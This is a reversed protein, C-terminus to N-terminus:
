RGALPEVVAEAFSELLERDKGQVVVYSIGTAERRAELQDRIEAAPGTLFIPCRAVEEPANYDTTVM